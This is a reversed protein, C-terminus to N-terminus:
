RSADHVAAIAAAIVAAVITLTLYPEGLAYAVITASVGVFCTTAFASSETGGRKEM